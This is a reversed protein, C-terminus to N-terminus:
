IKIISGIYGGFQMYKTKFYMIYDSAKFPINNIYFGDRTEVADAEITLVLKWQGPVISEKFDGNNDVIFAKYPESDISKIRGCQKSSDINGLLDGVKIEDLYLKKAGRVEVIYSIKTNETAKKAKGNGYFRVYTGLAILVVLIVLGVDIISVKGFLRGDKDIIM